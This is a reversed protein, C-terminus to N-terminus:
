RGHKGGKRGNLDFHHGLRRLNRRAQEARAKDGLELAAVLVAGWYPGSDRRTVDPNFQQRAM